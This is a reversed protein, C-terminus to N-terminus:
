RQKEKRMALLSQLVIFLALLASIIIKSWWSSLNGQFSVFTEILAKILVGFLTGIVNGVGGTLPTGGIVTSAIADMEFGRALEVFAGLTNLSYAVGGLTALFGNIIYVLLKTRKVNLGMLMASYENGGVAYITRGFKTYRLMIYGLVVIALALIVTPYIYPYIMEGKRNLYGGFPLYMKYQALKVYAENTVTIMELSIVATLGRAFFMGALTVIFPQLKLYSILWGQVAGFVVGFLLVILVAPLPEMKAKEMMAALMMCTVAVVSGVSIDIGAIILVMTMGVAIIILGANSILLNLFVQLNGFNKDKFAFLGAVYAIIFLVITVFLLFNRELLKQAVRKFVGSGNSQPAATNVKSM